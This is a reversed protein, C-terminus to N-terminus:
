AAVRSVDLEEINEIPDGNVDRTYAIIYDTFTLLHYQCGWVVIENIIDYRDSM